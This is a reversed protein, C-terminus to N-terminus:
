SARPSENLVLQRFYHDRVSSVQADIAATTAQSGAFFRFADIGQFVFLDVGSLTAAGCEEAAILLETRAPIYVADFVWQQDHVHDTKIPCGPHNIHGVPTCNVIGDFSAMRRKAESASLTETNIGQRNLDLSLAEGRTADREVLGISTVGLAGLACAVARGVGGAGVLLVRGAPRNAFQRQYASIFGSYDTNEAHIKGGEFILTNSSGVRQVGESLTDALNRAAEKFPFTVNSGRYGEAQLRAVTAPFDFGNVGLSDVLDYQTDLGVLSGLRRHLDPSQSKAIGEGILALKMAVTM